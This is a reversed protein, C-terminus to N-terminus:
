FKVGLTGRLLLDNNSVGPAPQTDYFEIVTFNLTLHTLLLYRLNVELRTQFDPTGSYQPLLDLKEDLSWRPTITWAAHEGIRIGEFNKTTGDSLEQYQYNLGLDSSLTFNTRTIFKYGVGLSENLGFTIKRIQNYGLGVADFLYVRKSPTLDFEVRGTGVMDNASVVGANIGYNALYDVIARFRDLGYTWKFRGYFLERQTQNFELDTGFQADVNWRKPPPPKPAAALVPTAAPKNTTTAVPANTGVAPPAVTVAPPANTAAAQNTSTVTAAVAPAPAPSVAPTNTSGAVRNTTTLKELREVYGVPVSIRGLMRNTMVMETSSISLLEGTLRDGNRLHMTVQEAVGAPLFVQGILIVCWSLASWCGKRNSKPLM